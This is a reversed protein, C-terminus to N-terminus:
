AKSKCEYVLEGEKPEPLRRCVELAAEVSSVVWAIGGSARVDRIFKEQLATTNREKGPLKVELAVFYGDHMTCVILDSVGVSYQGGHIKIVTHGKELLAKKIKLVLQPEKM